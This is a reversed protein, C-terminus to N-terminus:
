WDPNYDEARVECTFEGVEYLKRTWQMNTAPLDSILTFNSNLCRFVM